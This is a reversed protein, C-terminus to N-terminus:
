ESAARGWGSDFGRFKRKAQRISCVFPLDSRYRSSMPLYHPLFSLLDIIGTFSLAYKFAAKVESLQKYRIKATALRLFYDVVFFAVTVGELTILLPGYKERAAEFTYALSVILNIVITLMNLLDYARSAKDEPTAVEIIEFTRKRWRKVANETSMDAGRHNEKTAYDEKFANDVRM